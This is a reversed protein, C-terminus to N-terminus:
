TPNVCQIMAAIQREFPPLDDTISRWIQALDMGLYNHVLVNRFAALDRWMVQAHAAKLADSLRQTSEGRIQLNRLVADQTKTDEMFEDRGGSMYQAVRALCERIHILYLSDRSISM